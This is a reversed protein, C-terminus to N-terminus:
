AAEMRERGGKVVKGAANRGLGLRRNITALSYGEAFMREIM